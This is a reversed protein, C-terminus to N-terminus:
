RAPPLGLRRVIVADVEGRGFFREGVVIFAASGRMPCSDVSATSGNPLTVALTAM